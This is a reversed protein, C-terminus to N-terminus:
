NSYFSAYISKIFLLYIRFICVTNQIEFRKAEYFVVSKAQTTNREKEM